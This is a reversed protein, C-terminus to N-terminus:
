ISLRSTRIWEHYNLPGAERWPHKFKRKRTAKCRGEEDKSFNWSKVGLFIQGPFHTAGPSPLARGAVGGQHRPYSARCPLAPSTGSTGEREASPLRAGVTDQFGLQMSHSRFPQGPIKSRAITTAQRDMRSRSPGRRRHLQTAAREFEQPARRRNTQEREGPGGGGKGQAHM